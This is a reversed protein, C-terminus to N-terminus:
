WIIKQRGYNRLAENTKKFCANNNWERKQYAAAVPHECMMLTNRIPDIGSCVISADKGMAIFVFPKDLDSLRKLLTSIFLEWGINAHSRPENERVTLRSNLLLIGQQRWSDLSYDRDEEWTLFDGFQIETNLKDHIVKLSPPIRNQYSSFAYGNSHYNPYPDQGIIIVNLKVQTKLAKFIDKREPYVRYQNYENDLKKRLEIMYNKDLEDGILKYFKKGLLKIKTEETM